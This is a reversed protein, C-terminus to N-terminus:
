MQWEQSLLAFDRFDVTNSGDLDPCTEEGFCTTSQLWNDAIIHLDAFDVRCDGTLDNQYPCTPWLVIHNATKPSVSYTFSNGSVSITGPMANIDPRNADFAWVRGITYTKTSTINFTGNIATTINKNLVILHLENTDTGFISGYISSNAKDSMVAPVNTDGYTFRWGNYNRFLKFASKVYSGDGWYTALYLGYKGYIGLSDVTAIGGTYHDEGGWAYETTGLNTDPYYTTISSTLVPLIPLFDGHYTEVWSSEHYDYDWLSRPAQMRANYMATTNISSDGIGHNAGDTAASYLHIDLVDLLRKNATVSAAKMKDLYYSLFWNYGVGQTPWDSAGQFDFYEGFGYSVPGMIQANPDVNKVATSLAISKDRYEVCTPRYPHVEWHTAHTGGDQYWLAPENDLDYFKVGNPEGAHGYKSVLFNVFEDMYVSDDAINPSGPPSCFPAGKAFVVPKFYFSPAAYHNCDVMGFCADSVYGAMQLTVISAQNLSLAGDHFDTIAKGPIPSSSMYQDNEWWWDAGANSWNNEWNYATLRNGGSRRITNDTSSGGNSGYVYPSIPTRNVDTKITYTVNISAAQVAPTFLAAIVTVATLFAVRKM